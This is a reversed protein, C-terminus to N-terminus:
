DKKCIHDLFPLPEAGLINRQIKICTSQDTEALLRPGAKMEKYFIYEKRLIKQQFDIKM